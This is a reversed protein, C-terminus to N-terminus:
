LSFQRLNDGTGDTSMNEDWRADMTRTRRLERAQLSFEIELDVRRLDMRDAPRSACNARSSFDHGVQWSAAM